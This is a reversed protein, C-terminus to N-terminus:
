LQHQMPLKWDAAADAVGVPQVTYLFHLFLQQLLLQYAKKNYTTNVSIFIHKKHKTIGDYV